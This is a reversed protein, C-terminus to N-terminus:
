NKAPQEIEPDPKVPSVAVPSAPHRAPEESNSLSSPQPGKEKNEPLVSQIFSASWFALGATNRAIPSIALGVGVHSYTPDLLTARHPESESWLILVESAEAKGLAVNEAATLYQIGEATLRDTFSSNNEGVHSLTNNQQMFFAHKAAAADLSADQKLSPINETERFTNILKVLETDLDM